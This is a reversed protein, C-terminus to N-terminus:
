SYREKLYRLLAKPSLQTHCVRQSTELLNYQKGHRHINERLWNLLTSYEGKTFEDEINPFQSQIQEWLQAALMNGLCYSPFYGFSGHSWHVDQLVGEADNQPTYNLLEESLANWAQPLDIPKLSGDFLRKELEFRLIIHLNYTVEDSDVRIPNIQVENIAQYLEKSSVSKLQEPFLKRLEPEWYTWFSQSRGVQNEWIRSQSEHVGMGVADSLGTGPFDRPLGQQYLAHGTEHISSFLSDLPNDEHFRTTMRTDFISGSCFPHVATDIRGRSFDFGLKEIVRKLFDYQKDIPFKKFISKDVAPKNALIEKVLPVLDRKLDTFLEEILQASVGPTYHDLLYDYPSDSKGLYEAEQFAFDLLQQIYPAYSAFDNTKRAHIWAHYAKSCTESRKAVFQTPLKTLRDYDRRAERVVLQQETELDNRSELEDLCTGIDKNSAERHLITAMAANQEARWPASNHPLNVEEDWIVISTASELASLKRLHDLLKQYTNDM